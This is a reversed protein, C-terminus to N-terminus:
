EQDTGTNGPEVPREGIASPDPPVKSIRNILRMLLVHYPAHIARPRARFSMAERKKRIREINAETEEPTLKGSMMREKMSELLGQRPADPQPVSADSGTAGENNGKAADKEGLITRIYGVHDTTNRWGEAIMKAESTNTPDDYEDNWSVLSLGNLIQQEDYGEDVLPKIVKSGVEGVYMGMRRSADINKFIETDTAKEGLDDRAMYGYRYADPPTTMEGTMADPVQYVNAIRQNFDKDGAGGEGKGAQSMRKQRGEEKIEAMRYGHEIEQQREWYSHKLMEGAMLAEAKMRAQREEERRAAVNTLATGAGALLGSVLATNGARGLLGAM